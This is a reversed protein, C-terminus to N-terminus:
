RRFLSRRYTPATGSPQVLAPEVNGDAGNDQGSGPLDEQASGPKHEGTHTATDIPARAVARSADFRNNM